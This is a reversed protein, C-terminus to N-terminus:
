GKGNGMKKLILKLAVVSGLADGDPSAHTLILISNSETIKTNLEKLEEFFSINNKM